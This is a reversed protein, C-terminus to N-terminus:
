AKKPQRIMATNVEIGKRGYKSLDFIEENVAEFGNKLYLGKGVESAELFSPLQVKDAKEIGWKVLMDGVGRRQYEPDVVLMHLVLTILM